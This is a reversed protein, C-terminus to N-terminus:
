FIDAIFHVRSLDFRITPRLANLTANKYPKHWDITLRNWVENEKGRMEHFFATDAAGDHEM